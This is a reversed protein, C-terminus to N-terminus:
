IQHSKTDPKSVSASAKPKKQVMVLGAILVVTGLIAMWTIREHLVIAAASIAVLSQLYIYNTARVIGIRKLVANWLLYCGTSAVLGLFLLNGLVVPDAVKHWDPTHGSWLLVPVISLLGYFFVKRTIFITSYRNGVPRILLSYFAWTGAAALALIDGLPNLHLMLQGNLVILSMGVFSVVSGFSQVANLRESRYVAGVLLATLMPSAGVLISVNAATSYVLATNEALFYLSGGFLGLGLFLLEDRWTQALWRRHSLCALLLYAQVFRLFFIEDPFLGHALLIKSSVFTTGWVAVVLLAGIHGSWNKM